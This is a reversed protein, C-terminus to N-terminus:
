SEKINEDKEKDEKGFLSLSNETKNKIRKFNSRHTWFIFILWVVLLILSIYFYPERQVSVRIINVIAVISIALLSGIFGKKFFALYTIMLVFAVAFTIPSIVAFAGLSTAVGKGGKFKCFCSFVHGLVTTFGLACMALMTNQFVFMGILAFAVGKAFDLVFTLCGWFKGVSRLMNMTGPNGSGLEKINKNKLSSIITAFNISGVFYSVPVFILFLYLDNM